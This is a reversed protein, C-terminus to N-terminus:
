HEVALAKLFLTQYDEVKAKFGEPDVFTDPTYTVGPQWKENQNIQEPRISM